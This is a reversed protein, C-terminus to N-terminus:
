ILLEKWDFVHRIELLRLIPIPEQPEGDLRELHVLGNRRGIYRRFLMVETNNPGDTPTLTLVVPRGASGPRSLDLLVPEGMEWRPAMTEDPAYFAVTDRGIANTEPRRLETLPHPNLRFEGGSRCPVVGWVPIGANRRFDINM